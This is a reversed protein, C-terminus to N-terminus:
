LVVELYKELTLDKIKYTVRNIAFYLESDGFNCEWMWYEVWQWQDESMMSKVLQTYADQVHNGLEIFDIGLAKSVSQEYTRQAQVATIYDYAIKKM